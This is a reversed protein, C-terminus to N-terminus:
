IENIQKSKLPISLKSRVVVAGDRKSVVQTIEQIELEHAQKM